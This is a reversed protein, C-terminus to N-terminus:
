KVKRVLDTIENMSASRFGYKKECAKFHWLIEKLELISQKPNNGFNHPHWWLHYVKNNKAAYTMESKIRDLKLKNLFNDSYPRLLRSAKQSILDSSSEIDVLDYTKDNLGGYADGTRFIKRTLSNNSTDQWYWNAPNSRVSEIGLQSCIKLYERNYQNRPFVLSRLKLGWKDALEINKQLDLKFTESTQGEELCYYHSYTHTAFEQFPTNIIEKILTPAFCVEEFKKDRIVSGFKYPSLETNVYEPLKKPFNSEWDEWSNNFLMGVTAWTAHINAMRFSSLIEPVVKLTNKFYQLKEKPEIKDFVGWILEFDLSIVFFGSDLKAKEM